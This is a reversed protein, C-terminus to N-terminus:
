MCTCVSATCTCVLSMRIVYSYMRTGYPHFVLLVYLQGTCVFSMCIVHLILYVTHLIQLKEITPKFIMQPLFMAKRLHSHSKKKKERNM